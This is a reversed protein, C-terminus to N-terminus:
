PFAVQAGERNRLSGAFLTEKLRLRRTPRGTIGSKDETAWGLPASSSELNTIRTM